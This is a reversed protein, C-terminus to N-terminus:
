CGKFNANRKELFAAVGEEYDKSDFCVEAAAYAEEVTRDKPQLVAAIAKKAALLTLPAGAAITNATNLVETELDSKSFVANVIGLKLAEDSAVVKATFFLEKAVAPGVASVIDVVADVPYGIGLKAAPISFKCDDAAYLLDCAAAIGFGGGMCYGHIMAITPKECRRIAAFAISNAKDYNRALAGTTRITSFESIDAGSVFAIEGAGRIIVVNVRPDAGAEALVAPLKQWMELTMANHHTPNQIRVIALPPVIQVFVGVISNPTVM